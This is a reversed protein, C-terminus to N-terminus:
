SNIKLEKYRKLVYRATVKEGTARAIEAVIDKINKIDSMIIADKKSCDETAGKKKKYIGNIIFYAYSHGKRLNATLNNVLNVKLEADYINIVVSVIYNTNIIHHESAHIFEPQRKFYFDFLLSVSNGLLITKGSTLHVISNTTNFTKILVIEDYVLRIRLEKNGGDTVYLEKQEAM